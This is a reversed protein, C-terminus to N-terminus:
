KIIILFLQRSYCEFKALKAAVHNMGVARITRNMNIWRNKYMAVEV